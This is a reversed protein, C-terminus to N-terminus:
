IAFAMQLAAMLGLSFDPMSLATFAKRYIKTPQFKVTVM